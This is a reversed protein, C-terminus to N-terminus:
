PCDGHRRQRGRAHVLAIRIVTAITGLICLVVFWEPM